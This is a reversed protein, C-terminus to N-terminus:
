KFSSVKILVYVNDEVLYLIECVNKLYLHESLYQNLVFVFMTTKAFNLLEYSQLIGQTLLRKNCM